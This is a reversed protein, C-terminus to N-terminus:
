KSNILVSRFNSRKIFIKEQTTARGLGANAEALAQRLDPLYEEAKAEITAEDFESQQCRFFTSWCLFLALAVTTTL